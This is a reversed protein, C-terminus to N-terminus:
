AANLWIRISQTDFPWSLIEESDMTRKLIVPIHIEFRELLKEDDMIDVYDYALGLPALQAEAEECLHCGQTGLLILQMQM